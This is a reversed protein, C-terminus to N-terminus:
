DKIQNNNMILIIFMKLIYWCYFLINPSLKLQPFIWTLDDYDEDVDADNPVEM